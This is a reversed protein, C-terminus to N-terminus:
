VRQRTRAAGAGREAGKPGDGTLSDGGAKEDKADVGAKEAEEKRAATLWALRENSIIAEGDEILRSIFEVNSREIDDLSKWGDLESDDLHIEKLGRTLTGVVDNASM